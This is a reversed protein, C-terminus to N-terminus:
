AVLAVLPARAFSATLSSPSAPLPHATSQQYAMDKAADTISGGIAQFAATNNDCSFAVFDGPEVTISGDLSM